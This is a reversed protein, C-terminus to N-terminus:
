SAEVKLCCLTPYPLLGVTWGCPWYTDAARPLLACAASVAPVPWFPGIYCCGYGIYFVPLLMFLFWDEALLPETWCFGEDRWFEPALAEPSGRPRTCPAPDLPWLWRWPWWLPGPALAEWCFAIFLPPPEFRLRDGMRLVEKPRLISSIGSSSMQLVSLVNSGLAKPKWELVTSTLRSKRGLKWKLAKRTSCSLVVTGGIVAM